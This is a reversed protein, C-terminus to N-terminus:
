YIEQHYLNNRTMLFTVNCFNFVTCYSNWTSKLAHTAQKQLRNINCDKAYFNLVVIIDIYCKTHIKNRNEGDRQRDETRHRACKRNQQLQRVTLCHWDGNWGGDGAGAYVYGDRHTNWVCEKRQLTNLFSRSSSNVDNFSCSVGFYFHQSTSSGRMDNWVRLVKTWRRFM